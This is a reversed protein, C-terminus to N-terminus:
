PQHTVGVRPTLSAGWSLCSVVSCHCVCVGTACQCALVMLRCGVRGYRQSLGVHESVSQVCVTCVRLRPRGQQHESLACLLEQVAAEM